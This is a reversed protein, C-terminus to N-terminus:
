KLSWLEKEPFLTDSNFLLQTINDRNFITLKQSGIVIIVGAYQGAKVIFNKGLSKEQNFEGVQISRITQGEFTNLRDLPKLENLCTEYYETGYDYRVQDLTMFGITITEHEFDQGILLGADKELLLFIALPTSYDYDEKYDVRLVKLIQRGILQEFTNM